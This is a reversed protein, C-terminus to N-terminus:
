VHARGIEGIGSSFSFMKGVECSQCDEKPSTGKERLFVKGVPCEVCTAAGESVTTKGAACDTCSSLGTENAYKGLPCSTCTTSGSEAAFTGQSCPICFTKDEDPQYEGPPCRTPETLGRANCKHGRLCPTCGRISNRQATGKAFTQVPCLAPCGVFDNEVSQTPMPSYQGEPCTEYIVTNAYAVKISAGSGAANNLFQNSGSLYALSAGSRDVSIAGGFRAKNNTFTSDKSIMTSAVLRIAGSSGSGDTSWSKIKSCDHTPRLIDNSSARNCDFMTRTINIWSNEVNIAGAYVRAFNRDFTSDSISVNAQDTVFLAGGRVFNKNNIDNHYVLNLRFTVHSMTATVSSTLIIAGGSQKARFNTFTTREIQVSASDTVILCGGNQVGMLTGGNWYSASEGDFECDVLVLQTGSGKVRIQGGDDNYTPTKRTSGGNTRGGTIKLGQLRLMGGSVDFLRIASASVTPKQNVDGFVVLNNSNAVAATSALSCSSTIEKNGSSPIGCDLAESQCILFFSLTM